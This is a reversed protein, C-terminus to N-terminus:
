RDGPGHRDALIPIRRIETSEERAHNEGVDGEQEFEGIRRIGLRQRPKAGARGHVVLARRIEVRHRFGVPRGFPRDKRRDRRAIRVMRHEALFEAGAAGAVPQPHDIRDVAGAGEDGAHRHPARQDAIAFRAPRPDADHRLGEGALAEDGVALRGPAQM